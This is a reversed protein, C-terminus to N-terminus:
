TGDRSIAIDTVALLISKGIDWYLLILEQNPCM